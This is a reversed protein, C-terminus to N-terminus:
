QLHSHLLVREGIARVNGIMILIVLVIAEIIPCFTRIKSRLRNEGHKHSLSVAATIFVSGFGSVVEIGM